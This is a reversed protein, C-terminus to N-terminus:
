PMSEANDALEYSMKELYNHMEEYDATFELYSQRDCFLGLVKQPSVWDASAKGSYYRLSSWPWVSYNDANLHIYRSVHMLYVDSQINSAKYRGEFIVGRRKYKINYYKTYANAISRMLNKLDGEQFQYCLLHFHTPMLCFALLEIKGNYNDYAGGHTKNKTENKQLYRKLISLFFRYDQDDQLLINGQIARNYVHYYANDIDARVVNRSPM